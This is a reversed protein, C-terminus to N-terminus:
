QGSNRRAQISEAEPTAQHYDATAHKVLAPATLQPSTEGAEWDSLDYKKVRPVNPKHPIVLASDTNYWACTEVVGQRLTYPAEGLVRITEAIPTIYDSTMSNFRRTTIPFHVKVASLVDGVKAISKVWSTPMVRVKKGILEEAITDVWEKLNLPEDGVYFVKHDIKETEVTLIQMIQYVVNKVYGYSRTVKEKSPHLYLGSKLVKFLVDRYRLSWPGWVTTPRIITWTCTLDANRTFQETLVKTVGYLTFPNYDEDHKPLYGARCVFQSSTAILRQISPTTKVVALLNRTGETNQLYESMDEEEECDARAALHVVHTPQYDQFVQRLQALNLIDCSVWHDIQKDNLPPNWDVNRVDINNELCHAVLNTGIFGSGGTILLKM